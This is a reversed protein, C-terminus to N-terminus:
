IEAETILEIAKLQMWMDQDVFNVVLCEAVRSSPDSALLAGRIILNMNIFMSSGRARPRLQTLWLEMDCAPNQTPEQLPTNYPIVLALHYHVDDYLLRFIYLIQIIISQQSYIKVLTYDYHPKNHFDPHARLINSIVCWDIVSNFYVKIM